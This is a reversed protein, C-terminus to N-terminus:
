FSLRRGHSESQLPAHDPQRNGIAHCKARFEKGHGLRRGSEAQWQHVMEHALTDRVGKWGDRRLHRRAIRIEAAEDASAPRFEGLRRHMRFSLRLTVEGLAADFYLRNLEQHLERLRALVRDDGPRPPELIRRPERRPPVHQHVPYATLIRQAARREARRTRPRAWCAIALLVADPAMAYGAHVRLAGRATFSVLVRRNAHTEVTLHDPLGLSRLRESLSSPSSPSSPSSLSTPSTPAGATGVTGVAGVTGVTRGFLELQPAATV